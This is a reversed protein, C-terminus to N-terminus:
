ECSPRRRVTEIMEIHMEERNGIAAIVTKYKTLLMSPRRAKIALKVTMKVSQKARRVLALGMSTKAAVVAYTNFRSVEFQPASMVVPKGSHLNYINTRIPACRLPNLRM